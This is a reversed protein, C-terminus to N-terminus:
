KGNRGIMVVFDPLHIHLGSEQISVNLFLNVHFLGHAEYRTPACIFDTPKIPGDIPKLLSGSTPVYTKILGNLAITEDLVRIFRTYVGLSRGIRHLEDNNVYIVDKKIPFLLSSIVDLLSHNDLWNEMFSKPSAFKTRPILINRSLVFLNSPSEWAWYMSLITLRM